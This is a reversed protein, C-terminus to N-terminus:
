AIRERRCDFQSPGQDERVRTMKYVLNRSYAAATPLLRNAFIEVAPRQTKEAEAIDASGHSPNALGGAHIQDGQALVEGDFPRRRRLHDEYGLLLKKSASMTLM